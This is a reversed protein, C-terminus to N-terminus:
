AFTVPAVGRDVGHHRAARRLKEGHDPRRSRLSPRARNLRSPMAVVVPEAVTHTMTFPGIARSIPMFPPAFANPGPLRAFAVIPRATRRVEGSRAAARAGALDVHRREALRALVGEAERLVFRLTRPRRQVHLAAEIAFGLTTVTTPTEPVISTTSESLRM